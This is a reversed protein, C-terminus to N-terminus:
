KILNVIRGINDNFSSFNGKLPNVSVRDEDAGDVDFPILFRVPKLLGLNIHIVIPKKGLKDSIKQIIQNISISEGSIEFIGKRYNKILKVVADALEDRLVPQIKNEGNGIILAVNYRYILDAMQYFRNGGGIDYVYNPRIIIYNLKSKILIEEAEKKSRAYWSKNKLHVNQTSFYVLKKVGNETLREVLNRLGLVNEGYRMKNFSKVVSALNVVIDFDKVCKLSEKNMLDGVVCKRDVRKRVLLTVDFQKELKRVLSSGIYGNGGIVLIRKRAM